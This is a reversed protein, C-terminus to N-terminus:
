ALARVIGVSNKIRLVERESLVGALCKAEGSWGFQCERIGMWFSRERLWLVMDSGLLFNMNREWFFREAELSFEGRSGLHVLVNPGPFYSRGSDLTIIDDAM